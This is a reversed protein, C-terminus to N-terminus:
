QASQDQMDFFTSLKHEIIEGNNANVRINLAAFTQTIFTVNWTVDTLHQLIIMGKLPPHTPYSQMQLERAKHLADDATLQVNDLKLEQVFGSEKFVQAEPQITISENVTFTTILDKEKDYLGIEWNLPRLHNDLEAFFHALYLSENTKRWEKFTDSTQLEEYADTHEM